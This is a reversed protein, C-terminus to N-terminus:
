MELNNDNKLVNLIVNVCFQFYQVALNSFDDQLM